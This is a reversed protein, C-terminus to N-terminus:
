PRYPPPLRHILAARHETEPPTLLLSVLAVTTSDPATMREAQRAAWLHRASKAASARVADLFHDVFTAEDPRRRPPQREAAIVIRALTYDFLFANPEHWQPGSALRVEQHEIKWEEPPAGRSFRMISRTLVYDQVTDTDAQSLITHPM